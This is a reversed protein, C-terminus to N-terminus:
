VSKQTKLKESAKKYSRLVVLTFVCVNVCLLVGFGIRAASEPIILSIGYMDGRGFLGCLVSLYLPDIILMAITTYLACTKFLDSKVTGIKKQLIVLLWAVVFTAMAGVLCFWGRQTNTMNANFVDIQIGLGRFHTEKIAGISLAYILHAGEHVIYYAVIASLIGICQGTRKNM